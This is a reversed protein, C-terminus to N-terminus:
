WAVNAPDFLVKRTQILDYYDKSSNRFGLLVRVEGPMRILAQCIDQKENANLCFM